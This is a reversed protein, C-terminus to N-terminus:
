ISWETLYELNDLDFGFIGGGWGSNPDDLVETVPINSAVFHQESYMQDDTPETEIGGAQLNPNASVDELGCLIPSLGAQNIAWEFLSVTAKAFDLHQVQKLFEISQHIYIQALIRSTDSETSNLASEM